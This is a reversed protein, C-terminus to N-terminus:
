EAQEKKVQSEEFAIDGELQLEKDLAEGHKKMYEELEANLTKIKLLDEASLDKKDKFASLQGNIEGIKNEYFKRLEQLPKLEKKMKEIDLEHLKLQIQKASEDYISEKQGLVNNLKSNIQLHKQEIIRLQTELYEKNSQKIQADNNGANRLTDSNDRIQRVISELSNFDMVSLEHYTKEGGTMHSLINTLMGRRNADKDQADLGLLASDIGYIDIHSCIDTAILTKMQELDYPLRIKQEMGPMKFFLQDKSNRELLAHIVKGNDVLDIGVTEREGGKTMHTLVQNIAVTNNKLEMAERRDNSKNLHNILSSALGFTVVCLIKEFFSFKHKRNLTREFNDHTELPAKFIKMAKNKSVLADSLEPLDTYEDIVEFQNIIDDNDAGEAEDLDVHATNLGNMDAILRAKAEENNNQDNNVYNNQGNNINNVNLESM